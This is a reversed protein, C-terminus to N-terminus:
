PLIARAPLFFVGTPSFVADFFAAVEEEDEEENLL